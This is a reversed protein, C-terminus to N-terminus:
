GSGFEPEYFRTESCIWELRYLPVACLAVVRAERIRSVRRVHDDEEVTVLPLASVQLHDNM